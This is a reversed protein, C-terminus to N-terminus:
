IQIHTLNRFEFRAKAEFKLCKASEFRRKLFYIWFKIFYGFINQEMVFVIQIKCSSLKSQLVCSNYLHPIKKRVKIRSLAILGRNILFEHEPVHLDYM